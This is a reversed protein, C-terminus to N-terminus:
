NQDQWYEELFYEVEQIEESTFGAMILARQELSLRLDDCRQDEQSGWEHDLYDQIATEVRLITEEPLKGILAERWITPKAKKLLQDSSKLGVRQCLKEFLLSVPANKALLYLIAEQGAPTFGQETMFQKLCRYPNNCNKDDKPFQSTIVM